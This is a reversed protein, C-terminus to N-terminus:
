SAPGRADRELRGRHGRLPGGRGARRAAGVGLARRHRRAGAGLYGQHRDYRPTNVPCSADTAQSPLYPLEPRPAVFAAVVEPRARLRALVREVNVAAGRLRVQRWAQLDPMPRGSRATADVRDLALQAPSRAFLPAWELDASWADGAGSAVKVHIVVAEDVTDRSRTCMRIGLAAGAMAIWWRWKM